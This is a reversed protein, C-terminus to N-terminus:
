GIQDKKLNPHPPMAMNGWTGVHGKQVADVLTAQAGPQGAFKKAVDNFSPGVIKQDVAHCSFCDSGKAIKQGPTDAALSATASLLLATVAACTLDLLRSRM